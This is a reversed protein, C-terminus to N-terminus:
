IHEAYPLLLQYLVFSSANYYLSLLNHFSSKPQLRIKLFDFLKGKKKADIFHPIINNIEDVELILNKADIFHSIINGIKDVELTWPHFSIVDM